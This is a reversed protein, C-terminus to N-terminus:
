TDARSTAGPPQDARAVGERRSRLGVVTSTGATIGATVAPNAEGALWVQLLTALVATLAAAASVSLLLKVIDSM